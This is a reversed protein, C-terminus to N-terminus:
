RLRDASRVLEEDKKIFRTSLFLFLLQLLPLYSGALYHIREGPEGMTDAMFFLLAILICTILISLSCLRLQFKRNKFLFITVLALIGTAGNIIQLIVSKSIFVATGPTDPGATVPMREMLPLYMLLVSLVVVVLLLLSQVRQIM